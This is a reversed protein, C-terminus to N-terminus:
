IKAVRQWTITGDEFTIAFLYLGIAWSSCDIKERSKNVRNTLTMMKGNMDWIEIKEMIKRGEKAIVEFTTEAPNPYIELSSGPGETEHVTTYIAECDPASGYRKQDRDYYCNLSTKTKNRWDLFYLMGNEAGIGEIWKLLGYAEHDAQNEHKLIILKRTFGDRLLVSDVEVVRAKGFEAPLKFEDGVQLRFDYLISDYQYPIGPMVEHRRNNRVTATGNPNWGIKYNAIELREPDDILINRYLSSYGFNDPKGNYYAPLNYDKGFTFAYSNEIGNLDTVTYYWKKGLTNIQDYVFLSDIYAGANIVENCRDEDICGYQNLRALILAETSKETGNVYEPVVGRGTVMIGGNDLGIAGTYSEGYIKESGSYNVYVRQWLTRGAADCKALLPWYREEGNISPVWKGFYNGTVLISSNEVETLGFYNRYSGNVGDSNRTLLEGDDDFYQIGDNYDLDFASSGDPGKNVISICDENELCIGKLFKNGGGLPYSVSKKYLLNLNSDLKYYCCLRRNDQTNVFSILTLLGSDSNDLTYLRQSRYNENLTFITDLKLNTDFLMIFGKFNISDGDSFEKLTGAVVYKGKNEITSHIYISHFNSLQSRIVISDLLDLQATYKRITISDSLTKDSGILILNQNDFILENTNLLGNVIQASDFFVGNESIRYIKQFSSDMTTIAKVLYIDGDASRHISHGYEDFGLAPKM